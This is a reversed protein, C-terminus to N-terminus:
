GVRFEVLQATLGEARMDAKRLDTSCVPRRRAFRHAHAQRGATPLCVPMRIAAGLRGRSEFVIATEFIDNPDQPAQDSGVAGNEHGHLIGPARTKKGLGRQPTKSSLRPPPENVAGVVALACVAAGIIRVMVPRAFRSTKEQVAHLIGKFKGDAVVITLVPKQVIRAPM